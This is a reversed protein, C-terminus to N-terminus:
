KPELNIEVSKTVEILKNIRGGVGRIALEPTSAFVTTVLQEGDHNEYRIVYKNQKFATVDKM